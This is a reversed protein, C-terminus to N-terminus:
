MNSLGRYRVSPSTAAGCVRERSGREIFRIRWLGKPLDKRDQSAWRFPPGTTRFTGDEATPGWSTESYSWKGNPLLKEAAFAEKMLCEATGDTVTVRGKIVLKGNVKVFRFSAERAHTDIATDWTVPGATAQADPTESTASNPPAVLYGCLLLEDTEYQETEAEGQWGYWSVEFTFTGPESVTLGGQAVGQGHSSEEEATAACAGEAYAHMYVYVNASESTSGSVTAKLVEPYPTESPVSISLTAETANAPSLGVCLLCTALLGVLLHKM